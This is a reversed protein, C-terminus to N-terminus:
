AGATKLIRHTVAYAGLDDQLNAKAGNKILQKMVSMMNNEAAIM